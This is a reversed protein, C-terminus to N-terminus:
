NLLWKQIIMATDKPGSVTLSVIGAREVPYDNGGPFMADGVYIIDKKSFNLTKLLLELGVAKDFNKPLIDISTSGGISAEIGPINAELIAKIKKRKAFTPDWTVKKVLPALQGLGSFTIQTGRDEVYDGYHEQPIGFDGSTIVKQLEALIIQKKQASFSHEDTEKWSSSAMDYRYVQTGSTPLLVLNKNIELNKQVSKGWMPLFQKEFQLYSGGSIVAIPYKLAFQALLVAMDESLAQKSEALTGDLDFAVIKYPFPM